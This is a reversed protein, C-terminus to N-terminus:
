CNESRVGSRQTEAQRRPLLRRGLTWFRHASKLGISGRLHHDDPVREYLVQAAAVVVESGVGAGCQPYGRREGFEGFRDSVQGALEAHGSIECRLLASCTM